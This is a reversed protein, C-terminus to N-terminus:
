REQTRPQDQAGIRSDGRVRAGRSDSLRNQGDDRVESPTARSTRGASSKQGRVQFLLLTISNGAAEIKAAGSDFRGPEIM